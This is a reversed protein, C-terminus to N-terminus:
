ASRELAGNERRLRAREACSLNKETCNQSFGHDLFVSAVCTCNFFKYCITQSALLSYKILYHITLLSNDSLMAIILFLM